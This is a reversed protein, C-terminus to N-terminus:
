LEILPQTADMLIDVVLELGHVLSSNAGYQTDSTIEKQFAPLIYNLTQRLDAPEDITAPVTHGGSFKLEHCRTVIMILWGLINQGPFDNRTTNLPRITALDLGGGWFQSPTGEILTHDRYKRCVKRFARVEQWKKMLLLFMNIITDRVNWVSGSKKGQHFSTAVFTCLKSSCLGGERIIPLLESQQTRQAMLYARLQEACQFEFGDYALTCRYLNSM